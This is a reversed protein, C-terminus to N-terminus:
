VVIELAGEQRIDLTSCCGPGFVKEMSETYTTVGDGPVLSLITGAFGGGHVRCAGGERILQESVTLAIPLPQRTPTVTSYCNQCLMWSSYGSARITKLFTEKDRTRLASEAIRVRENEEYFHWARLLARHNDQRVLSPLASLFADQTFDGLRVTEAAGDTGDPHPNGHCLGSREVVAGDRALDTLLRAVCQMEQRVSAYEETLHEHSGETQVVVIRLGFDDLRDSVRTIEPRDTDSFDITILGGSACAIQDMLGCPKGFYRNEAYQGIRAATVPDVITDSFLRALVTVILMEFCASSSLGSGTPVSSELYVHCGGVSYGLEQMYAVIGRLLSQPRNKEEPRPACDRVDISIPEYGYSHVNIMPSSTVSAAAIMDLTVAGTLVLGGNHDTHNGCLEIRGPSSFVRVDGSLPLVDRGRAILDRYRNSKGAIIRGGTNM